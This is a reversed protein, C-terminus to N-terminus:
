DFEYFTYYLVTATLATWLMGSMMSGNYELEKNASATGKLKYLERLKMDMEYRTNLFGKISASLENGTRKYETLSKSTTINLKANQLEILKTDLNSMATNLDDLGNKYYNITRGPIVIQVNSPDGRQAETFSEKGVDIFLQSQDRQDTFRVKFIEPVFKTSAIGIKMGDIQGHYGNLGLLDDGTINITYENGVSFEVNEFQTTFSSGVPADGNLFQVYQVANSGDNSNPGMEFEFDISKILRYYDQEPICKSTSRESDTLHLGNCHVYKSYLTNFTNIHERVQTALTMAGQVEFGEKNIPEFLNSLQIGSIEPSNTYIGNFLTKQMEERNTFANANTISFGETSSSPSGINGGIYWEAINFKDGGYLEEIIMRITRCGSISAQYKHEDKSLEIPKYMPKNADGPFAAVLDYGGGHSFVGNKPTFAARRTDHKFFDRMEKGNINFKSFMIGPRVKNPDSSFTKENVFIIKISELGSIYITEKTVTKGAVFSSYIRGNLSFTFYERGYVGTFNFEIKTTYKTGFDYTALHTWTKQDDSINQDDNSCVFSIKKPIERQSVVNYNNKRVQISMDSPFAMKPFTIQAWSGAIAAGGVVPTSYTTQPSGGGKYVSTYTSTPIYPDTVYPYNETGDKNKDSAGKIQSHWFSNLNNKDFLKVANWQPNQHLYDSQVIVEGGVLLNINKSKKGLDPNADILPNVKTVSSM